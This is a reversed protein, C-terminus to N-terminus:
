FSFSRRDLGGGGSRWGRESGGEIDSEAEEGSEGGDRVEGHDEGGDSGEDGGAAGKGKAIDDMSVGGDRIAEEREAREKKRQNRRKRQGAQCLMRQTFPRCDLERARAADNMEKIPWPTGAIHSIAFEGYLAKEDPSWGRKEKTTLEKGAESDMGAEAKCNSAQGMDLKREAQEQKRQNHHKQFELNLIRQTFPRCDLGRRRAADNMANTPWPGGPIHANAFELYLARESATWGDSPMNTASNPDRQSTSPTSHDQKNSLAENRIDEKAKEKKEEKEAREKEWEIYGNGQEKKKEKEAQEKKWEMYGKDKEKKEEKEAQEKKWETYAKHKLFQQTFPRCNLRRTIAALNMKQIPWPTGTVHSAAFERYLEEEDPTWVEWGSDYSMNFQAISEIQSKL